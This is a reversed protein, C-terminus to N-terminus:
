SKNLIRWLSGSMYYPRLMTGENRELDELFCLFLSDVCMSYVSFFGQAILYAGAMVTIVPLWYYHLLQIQFNDDPLRIRGSFFFFALLGVLGVVLVKGSFLLTDTVCDLVVVRNINRRLLMYANKGSVHFNNGHIAIMIYTNRHFFKLFKDLFWFCCKLSMMVFQCCFNRCDRFRYDLYELFMRPVQFITLIVAGLALSGVHCGLTRIFAQLLPYPPIDAPKSFAWYFSAFTGALTCQGLAIIFNVCWLFALLKYIQLYPAIRSFLDTDDYKFFVCRVSPCDPHLSASFEKPICIESGTISSCNAISSNLAAVHYVPAGSTALYLSTIGWYAMSIVVLLFTVLPYALTTTVCSVARNSEKILALAVSIRRGRHTLFLLIVFELLCLSVLFFLWTEKVQLYVSFESNYTIDGLTLKSHRYHNYERYCYYIGYAGAVLVGVILALLLVFMLYEMASKIHKVTEDVSAFGPLSFDPPVDQLEFSPLCKGLAPKSPTYFYPCLEQNLIDQVSMTTQALDLRPDCYQQQFFDKPLADPAYAEAPLKWFESPCKKVCVQTTPCQLGELTADMETTARVCKLVDFYLVNPKDFNVGSGCFMGTSNRPLLVHRPDGYLLALIGILMYSVIAAVFAMCCIIDTCSRKSVPGRFFPEYPFPEGNYDPKRVM